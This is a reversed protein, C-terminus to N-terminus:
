KHQKKLLGMEHQKLVLQQRLAELSTTGSEVAALATSSSLELEMQLSSVLSVCLNTGDKLGMLRKILKLMERQSRQQVHFMRIKSLAVEMLKLVHSMMVLGKKQVAFEEQLQKIETKQAANEKERLNQLIEIEKAHLCRERALEAEYRGVTAQMDLEKEKYLEDIQKQLLVSTKNDEERTQHAIGDTDTADRGQLAASLKEIQATLNNIRMQYFEEIEKLNQKDEDMSKQHSNSTAMTELQVTLMAKDERLAILESNMDEMREKLDELENRKEEEIVRKKGDGQSDAQLAHLRAELEQVEKAHLKRMQEFLDEKGLDRELSDQITRVYEQIEQSHQVNLLDIRQRLRGRENESEQVRKGMESIRKQYIFDKEESDNRLVANQAIIAELEEIQSRLRRIENSSELEHEERLVREHEDALRSAWEENAEEFKKSWDQELELKELRLHESFEEQFRQSLKQKQDCMGDHVAALQLEHEQRMDEMRSHLSELESTLMAKENELVSVQGSLQKELNRERYKSEEREELLKSEYEVVMQDQQARWEKEKQRLDENLIRVTDQLHQRREIEDQLAKLTTDFKTESEKLIEEYEKRYTEFEKKHNEIDEKLAQITKQAKNLADEHQRELDKREREWQTTKQSCKEAEAKMEELRAKLGENEREYEGAKECWSQIKIEQTGVQEKISLVEDQLSKIHGDKQIVRMMLCEKEEGLRKVESSLRDIEERASGLAEVHLMLEQKLSDRKMQIDRLEGRDAELQEKLRELEQKTHSIEAQTDVLMHRACELEENRTNCETTMSIVRLILAERESSASHLDAKLELVEREKAACREEWEVVHSGATDWQAKSHAVDEKLTELVSTLRLVEDKARNAEELRRACELALHDLSQSLETEKRIAELRLMEERGHAIELDVLLKSRVDHLENLEQRTADLSSEKGLLQTQLEKVHDEVSADHSHANAKFQDLEDRTASLNAWLADYEAIMRTLEAQLFTFDESKREWKEQLSMMKKEVESCELRVSEKEVAALALEERLSEREKTAVKLKEELSGLQCQLKESSDGGQSRLNDLEDTQKKLMSLIAKLEADKEEVVTCWRQDHEIMERKGEERMKRVQEEMDQSKKKWEGVERKFQSIEEMKDLLEKEHREMLKEKEKELGQIQTKLDQKERELDRLRCSVEILSSNLSDLELLYSKKEEELTYIRGEVERTDQAELTERLQKCEERLSLLEKKKEEFSKMNGDKTEMEVKLANVVAELELNKANQSESLEELRHVEAQLQKEINEVTALKGQLEIFARVKEEATELRLQSERLQAQLEEKEQRIQDVCSKWTAIDTEVDQFYGKLEEHESLTKLLLVGKEDLEKELKKKSEELAVLESRLSETQSNHNQSSQIAALLESDMCGLREELNIKEQMIQGYLDQLNTLEEDRAKLHSSLNDRESRLCKYEVMQSQLEDQLESCSRSLIEKEDVWAKREAELEEVEMRLVENKAALQNLDDASQHIDLSKERLETQLDGLTSQVTEFERAFLIIKRSKEEVQVQLQSVQANLSVSTVQLNRICEDKEQVTQSFEEIRVQMRKMEEEKLSMESQLKQIQADKDELQQQLDECVRQLAEMELSQKMKEHLCAELEETSAANGKLEEKERELSRITDQLQAGEEQQRQIEEMKTSLLKELHSLSGQLEHMEDQKRKMEETLSELKNMEDKLQLVAQEKATLLEEREKNVEILRTQLKELELTKQQLEERFGIGDEISQKLVDNVRALEDREMEIKKMRDELSSKEMGLSGMKSQFAERQAQLEQLKATMCDHIRQIEQALQIEHDAKIRELTVSHEAEVDKLQEQFRSVKSRLEEELNGITRQLGMERQRLSEVLTEMSTLKGQMEVLASSQQLEQEEMQLSHQERLEKLARSKEAEKNKLAEAIKADLEKKWKEREQTHTEELRKLEQVGQEKILQVAAAKGRSLEHMLNEREEELAKEAIEKSKKEEELSSLAEKLKEKLSLVQVEREQLELHLQQKTQAMELNASDEQDKIANLEDNLAKVEGELNKKIVDHEEPIAVPAQLAGIWKKVEAEFPSFTVDIPNLWPSYPLLSPPVFHISHTPYQPIIRKHVQANDLMFIFANDPRIIARLEDSFEAFAVRALDSEMTQHYLLVRSPVIRLKILQMHTIITEKEQLTQLLSKNEHSLQLQKERNSKLVAKSKQLLEELKSNKEKLATLESTMSGSDAMDKGVELEDNAEKGGKKLLEIKTNLVSIVHDKEELDARLSEEMHAKAAQELCCQEELEKMKRRLPEEGYKLREMEKEALGMSKRLDMYRGKYKHYRLRLSQYAQYIQDKSVKELRFSAENEDGETEWDSPFHHSAFIHSADSTMSSVSSARSIRGTPPTYYLDSSLSSSEKSAPTSHPPIHADSTDLKKNLFADGQNDQPHHTDDGIKQRLKKFM